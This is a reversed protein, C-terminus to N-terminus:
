WLGGLIVEDVYSKIEAKDEETFYDVGKQPKLESLAIIKEWVDDGNSYQIYGDSVRIHVSASINNEKLYDEIVKQIEEDSVGETDPIEIDICIINGDNDISLYKGTNEAGLNAALKNEAIEQLVSVISQITGDETEVNGDVAPREKVDFTVIYETSGSSEDSIFVYAKVLGVDKLIQDPVPAETIGNKTIGIRPIAKGDNLSYHIEVYEPLDLGEIRLIQGYDYQWVMSPSREVYSDTFHVNIIHM